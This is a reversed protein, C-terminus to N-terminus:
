KKQFLVKKPVPIEQFCDNKQKESLKKIKCNKIMKSFAKLCKTHSQSERIRQQQFYCVFLKFCAESFLGLSNRLVQLEFYAAILHERFSEM